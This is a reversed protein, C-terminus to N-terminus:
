RKKKKKKIDELLRAYNERVIKTNPHNSDLTKEMIALAREYLPKAQEYNGQSKYLGALNNLSTATDPHNPGLVQEIIALAREYLPKAQEYDGQSDYLGALNNLSTATDPHNPGLVQENIALAREFLPKAQEYDGHRNYLFALNNLSRATNPHNPGLVQERIALAREYLPKAQEYDGHRNYLFALNNLSLTTDPHNPGLVQENIALAREYLPKTQEYQAHDNLYRGTENLLRAAEPLELAYENILEACVLAHPLLRECQPWTAVEVEPFADNVARITREAWQRRIEDTMSAKLVSQVLRHIFLVQKESNRQVLSFHRLTGIAEDLLTEDTTIPELQEGLEAAGNVLLEEPIAEPALFALFRLLNAAIPSEQEVQEFNLSWTTAVADPHDKNVGGRQRLLENRRKQYAKLYASLSCQTEEIYAGAQDIALPLGDLEEVITSATTQDAENAQSLPAHATLIKARRLLLEMSERTDMKDVEFNALSGTAADRTTLLMHGKEVPPFENALNLDDANDLILLWGDHNALWQKVAEVVKHQDQEEKIPLQLVKAIQVFGETVTVPETANVWLVYQYDERHRYAYEITIQTKGIGGLGTIAPPQTLAATAARSFHDHLKELIVERGTFFPNRRYPVNWIVSETESSSSREVLSHQDIHPIITTDLINQKSSPVANTFDHESPSTHIIIQPATSTETTKSFLSPTLQLFAFVVSFVAFLITCFIGADTGLYIWITAIVALSLLIMVVFSISGWPLRHHDQPKNPQQGNQQIQM